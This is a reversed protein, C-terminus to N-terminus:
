NNICVGRLWYTNIVLSSLEVYERFVFAGSMIEEPRRKQTQRGEEPKGKEEKKYKLDQYDAIM